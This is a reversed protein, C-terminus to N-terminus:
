FVAYTVLGGSTVSTGFNLCVAQSAPFTLERRMQFDLALVVISQYPGSIATTGSACNVGTGYEITVNSAASNGLSLHCIRIQKGSSLAIIQTLGSASINVAVSNDCVFDAVLNGSSNQTGTNIPNGIASGPAVPGVVEVHGGTDTKVTQTNTGDQGAVLVPPNAPPSGSATVGIVPCPNPCGTSGGGGGGSPGSKYGYLVGSVNGSGTLGSLLVRLWPTAATLNSFTSTEGTTSTMPNAGTVVSGAYTGFAGPTVAGTASQFTLTLGSFGSASYQLTWTVCGIQRNDFSATNGASGFSIFLQCDPAVPPSQANSKGTLVLLLLLPILFTFTIRRVATVAAQTRTM